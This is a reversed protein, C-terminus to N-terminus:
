EEIEHIRRKRGPRTMEAPGALDFLNGCAQYQRLFFTLGYGCFFNLSLREKRCISDILARQEPSVKLTLRGGIASHNKKRYKKKFSKIVVVSKRNM